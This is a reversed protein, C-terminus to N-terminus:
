QQRGTMSLSSRVNDLYEFAAQASTSAVANDDYHFEFARSWKVPQEIPL